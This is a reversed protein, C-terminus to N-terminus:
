VSAEGDTSVISVSSGDSVTGATVVLEGAELGSVVETMTGNTLGTEVIRRSVTNTAPDVVYVIADDLYTGIAAVPVALVDQVQETVLNVTVFMGSRLRTDPEDVDLTVDITRSTTDIDLGLSAVTASFSEEPWPVTTFQATMGEQISSLYKEPVDLEIHLNDDQPRLVLLGTSTSVTEGVVSSLSVVRGDVPATVPSPAYVAGPKSADVVALVDGAKVTSGESVNYQTIKGAISPYVTVNDNYSLSGYLRTTRYVDTMEATAVSVAVVAEEASTSQQPGTSAAPQRMAVLTQISAFVLAAILILIIITIVRDFVKNQKMM